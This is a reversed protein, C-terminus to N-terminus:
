TPVQVQTVSGCLEQHLIALTNGKKVQLAIVNVVTKGPGGLSMLMVEISSLASEAKAVEGEGM